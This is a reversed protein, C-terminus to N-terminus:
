QIKVLDDVKERGQIMGSMYLCAIIERVKFFDRSGWGGGAVVRSRKGGGGGVGAM